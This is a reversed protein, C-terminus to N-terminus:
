SKMYPEDAMYFGFIEERGSLENTIRRAEMKYPTGYNSRYKEGDENQFYDEDNFMNRVLVKMGAKGINEIAQKYEKTIQGDKTFPVNDETLICINM